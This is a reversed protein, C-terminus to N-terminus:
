NPGFALDPPGTCGPPIYLWYGRKPYAVGGHLQLWIEIQQTATASSQDWQVGEEIVPKEKKKELSYSQSRVYRKCGEFQANAKTIYKTVYSIAQKQNKIKRIDVVPSDILDAMQESLWAKSLYRGRLFIHLHPAGRKTKEWVQLYDVKPVKFRKVIRARLLTWAHKLAQAKQKPSDGERFRITLTLFRTPNGSKALKRLEWARLPACDECKWSRCKLCYVQKHTPLTKVLSTTNCYM